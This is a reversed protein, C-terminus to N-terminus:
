IGRAVLTSAHVTFARISELAPVPAPPVAAERVSKIRVIRQRKERICKLHAVKFVMFQGCTYWFLFRAWKLAVHLKTEEQQLTAVWKRTQTGFGITRDSVVLKAEVSAEKIIAVRRLIQDARLLEAVRHAEFVDLWVLLEQRPVQRVLALGRRLDELPLGRHFPWDSFMASVKSRCAKRLESSGQDHDEDESDSTTYGTMAAHADQQSEVQMKNDGDSQFSELDLRTVSRGEAKIQAALRQFAVYEPWSSLMGTHRHLEKAMDISAAKSHPEKAAGPAEEDSRDSADNVDRMLIPDRASNARELAHRPVDQPTQRDKRVKRSDEVFLVFAARLAFEVVSASFVTKSGPGSTIHEVTYMLNEHLLLRASSSRTIDKHTFVPMSSLRLRYSTWDPMTDLLDYGRPLYPVLAEDAGSGSVTVFGHLAHFAAYPAAHARATAWDRAM